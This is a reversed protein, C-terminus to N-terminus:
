ILLAALGLGLPTVDLAGPEARSRGNNGTQGFDLEDQRLTGQQENEKETVYGSLRTRGEREADIAEEKGNM